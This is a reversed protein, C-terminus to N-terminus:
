VSLVTQTGFFVCKQGLGKRIMKKSKLGGLFFIAQVHQSIPRTVQAEGHLQAPNNSATTQM